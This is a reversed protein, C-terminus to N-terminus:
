IRKDTQRNRRGSRYVRHRGSTSLSLTVKDLYSEEGEVTVTITSSQTVGSDGRDRNYAGRRRRRRYNRGNRVGHCRHKQRSYEVKVPKTTDGPVITNGTNTYHTVTTSVKDGTSLNEVPSDPTFDLLDYVVENVAAHAVNVTFELASGHSALIRPLMSIIDYDWNIVVAPPSFRTWDKERLHPDAGQWPLHQFTQIYEAKSTNGNFYYLEGIATPLTTANECNMWYSLEYLKNKDADILGWHNASTPEYKVKDVAFMFRRAAATTENFVAKPINTPKGTIPSIVDRQMSYDYVFQGGRNGIWITDAQKVGTSGDTLYAGNEFEGHNVGHRRLLSVGVVAVEVTDSIVGNTATIEARGLAAGTVEGDANVTAIEPASSTFTLESPDIADGNQDTIILPQSYGVEVIKIPFSLSIETITEEAGATNEFNFATVSFLMVISLM